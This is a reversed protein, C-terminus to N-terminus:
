GHSFKLLSSGAVEANPKLVEAANGIWVLAVFVPTRPVDSHCNFASLLRGYAIPNKVTCPIHSSWVGLHMASISAAFAAVQEHFHTPPTRGKTTTPPSPTDHTAGACWQRRSDERETCTQGQATGACLFRRCASSSPWSGSNGASHSSSNSWWWWRWWFCVFLCVVVVVVVVCGHDSM